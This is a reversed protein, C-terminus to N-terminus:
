FPLDSLDKGMPVPGTPIGEVKEEPNYIPTKEIVPNDWYEMLLTETDYLHRAYEFVLQMAGDAKPGVLQVANNIARARKMSELKDENIKDWDPKDPTYTQQTNNQAVQEATAQLQNEEIDGEPLAKIKYRKQGNKVYSEKKLTMTEGMSLAAKIEAHVNGSAYYLKGQNGDSHDIVQYLYQMGYNGEKEEPTPSAITVKVSKDDELKLISM